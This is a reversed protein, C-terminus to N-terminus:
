NQSSGHGVAKGCQLHGETRERLADAPQGPVYSVGVLQTSDRARGARTGCFSIAAQPLGARHDADRRRGGPTAYSVATLGGSAKMSAFRRQPSAWNGWASQAMFIAMM